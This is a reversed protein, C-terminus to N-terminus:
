QSQAPENVINFGLYFQIVSLQYSPPSGNFEKSEINMKFPFGHNYRFGLLVKESFNYEVGVDIGMDFNNYLDDGSILLGLEVGANLDIKKGIGYVLLIPWNLYNLSVNTSGEDTKLIYGKNSFLMEIQWGFHSSFEDKVYSGLHYSTRTNFSFGEFYNARNTVIIDSINLGGKLGGKLQSFGSTLTFVILIITIFINKMLLKNIFFYITQRYYSVFLPLTM